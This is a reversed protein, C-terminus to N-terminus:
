LLGGAGLIWVRGDTGLDGGVVGVAFIRKAPEDLAVDTVVGDMVGQSTWQLSNTNGATPPLIPDYVIGASLWSPEDTGSTGTGAGVNTVKFYLRNRVFPHRARPKVLAGLTYVTNPKWEAVPKGSVQIQAKVKGTPNLVLVGANGAAVVINGNAAVVSKFFQGGGSFRYSDVLVLPVSASIYDYINFRDVMSVLLRLGTADTPHPIATLANVRAPLKTNAILPPTLALQHYVRLREVGSETTAVLIRVPSLFNATAVARVATVGTFVTATSGSSLDVVILQGLVASNDAYEAVYGHTSSVALGVAFSAGPLDVNLTGAAPVLTYSNLDDGNGTPGASGTAAAFEAAVQAGSLTSNEFWVDDLSMNPENALTNLQGRGLYWTPSAPTNTSASSGFSGQSVGNRYVTNVTLGFTFVVHVWKNEYGTFFNAWNINGQSSSGAGISKNNDFRLYLPANTIDGLQSLTLIGRIGAAGAGSFDNTKIWFGISFNNFTKVLTVTAADAGGFVQSQNFHRANGIKGVEAVPTGNVSALPYTGVADAATATGSSEDLRWLFRTGGGIVHSSPVFSLNTGDVQIRAVAGLADDVGQAVGDLHYLQTSDTSLVLAGRLNDILTVNDFKSPEGIYYDKSGSYSALIEADTRAVNSFRTDDIFGPFNYISNTFAQGIWLQCSAATGAAPQAVVGTSPVQVGNVFFDVRRLGGGVDVVRIAAHTWTNSVIPQPPTTNTYTAAPAEWETVLWGSSGIFFSAREQHPEGGAFTGSYSFLSAISSTILSLDIKFWTEWTYGGGIFLAALAADGARNANNNLTNVFQRANGFQGIVVTHTGNLTLNRGGSSFDYVVLGSTEDYRWLALTSADLLHGTPRAVISSIPRTRQLMGIESLSRPDRGLQAISVHESDYPVVEVKGTGLVQNTILPEGSQWTVGGDLSVRGYVGGAKVTVYYLMLQDGPVTRYSVKAQSGPFLVTPGSILAGTLVNFRASSINGDVFGPVATGDDWIVVLQDTSPRLIATVNRFNVALSPTVETFDLGTHPKWHLRKLGIDSIPTHWLVYLVGARTFSSLEQPQGELTVPSISSLTM